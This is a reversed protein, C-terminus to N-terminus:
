LRSAFEIVYKGGVLQHFYLGQGDPSLAPAEVFGTLLSLETPKGFAGTATSRTAVYISPPASGLPLPARTYYLQLGNSSIDPAYVLANPDNVRKLIESSTPQRTFGNQAKSAIALTASLLQGSRSYVGDDFYLVNGAPDIDADFNVWGSKDTSVGQVLAVATVSGNSYEGEYITSLTQNYSRTSIFFFAGSSDM